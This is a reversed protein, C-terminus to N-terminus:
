GMGKVFVIPERSLKKFKDMVEKGFFNNKKAIIEKAEEDLEAQTKEKIVEIVGDGAEADLGEKKREEETKGEEDKEEEAEEMRILLTRMQESTNEAAGTAHINTHKELNRQNREKQREELSKLYYAPEDTLVCSPDHAEASGLDNFGIWKAVNPLALKDREKRQLALMTDRHAMESGETYKLDEDTLDMGM